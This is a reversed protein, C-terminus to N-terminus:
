FQANRITPPTNKVEFILNNELTVKKLFKEKEFIIVVNVHKVCPMQRYYPPTSQDLFILRNKLIGKKLFMERETIIVVNVNSFTANRLRSESM